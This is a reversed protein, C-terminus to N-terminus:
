KATQSQQKLLKMKQLQIQIYCVGNILTHYFFM